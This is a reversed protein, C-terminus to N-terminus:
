GDVIEGEQWSGDELLTLVREVTEEDVQEVITATVFSELVFHLHVDVVKRSELGMARMLRLCNANGPCMIAPHIM